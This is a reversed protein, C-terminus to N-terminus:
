PNDGPKQLLNTCAPSDTVGGRLQAGFDPLSVTAAVPFGKRGIFAANIERAREANRGANRAAFLGAPDHHPFDSM